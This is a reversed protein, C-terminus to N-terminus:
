TKTSSGSCKKGSTKATGYDGRGNREKCRNAGKEKDKCADYARDRHETLPDKKRGYEHDRRPGGEKFGRDQTNSSFTTSSSFSIGSASTAKDTTNKDKAGTLKEKVKEVVKGL